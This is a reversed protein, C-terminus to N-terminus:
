VVRNNFIIRSGFSDSKIKLEKFDHMKQAVEKKKSDPVYLMLFGGGGAGLIKGGLAGADKALKYMNDIEINTINNALQKKISWYEDMIVGIDDYNNGQELIKKVLPVTEKIKKLHEQGKVQTSLKKQSTLIDSSKRTINTYFVMLNSFFANKNSDSINIKSVSVSSDKNFIIENFNGFAASYQDQKGIPKKLIKLEIECAEEALKEPSVQRGAYTHLANLLGVTVTSSSGLGSGESPIDAPTWIEIKKTVGTKLLAERVLEHKIDYVNKVIERKTYNLVINNDFREKVVVYIYKDIATSVVRGGYCSWFEKLDTGGGVLSIRLPTQSMIM